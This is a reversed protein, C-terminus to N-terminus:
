CITTISYAPDLRSRARSMKSESTFRRGRMLSVMRWPLRTMRFHGSSFTRQGSRHHGGGYRTRVEEPKHALDSIAHNRDCHLV